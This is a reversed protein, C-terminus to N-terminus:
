FYIRLHHHVRTSGAIDVEGGDVAERLQPHFDHCTADVLWRAMRAM